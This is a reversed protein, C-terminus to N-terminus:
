IECSVVAISRGRHIDTAKSTILGGDPLVPRLFNVKLDLPSFSTAPPLTTLVACNLAYDALLALAGGYTVGYGNTYWASTPMTAAAQGDGYETTRMGTFRCIPPTFVGEVA